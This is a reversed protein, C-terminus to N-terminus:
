GNGQGARGTVTTRHVEAVRLTVGVMVEFTVGFTVGQVRKCCSKPCRATNEGLLFRGEEHSFRGTGLIQLVHDSAAAGPQRQLLDESPRCKEAEPYRNSRSNENWSAPGLQECGTGEGLEFASLVRDDDLEAAARSSDAKNERGTCM